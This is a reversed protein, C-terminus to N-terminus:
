VEPLREPITEILAVLRIYFESFRVKGEKVPVKQYNMVGKQKSFSEVDQILANYSSLDIGQGRPSLILNIKELYGAGQKKLITLFSLVHGNGESDIADDFLDIFLGRYASLAGNIDGAELLKDAKKASIKNLILSIIGFLIVVGFIILKM